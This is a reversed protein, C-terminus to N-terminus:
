LWREGPATVIAWVSKGIGRRTRVGWRASYAKVLTLGRGGADDHARMTPPTEDADDVAIRVGGAGRCFSTEIEERGAPTQAHVVANTVLESLVAVAPEEVTQLGWDNLASRLAARAM